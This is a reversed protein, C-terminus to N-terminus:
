DPRAWSSSVDSGGEVTFRRGSRFLLPNPAIKGSALGEGLGFGPAREILSAPAFSFTETLTRIDNASNMKMVILNDCQSLVNPHVKDPRQTSLLLYLGFKRGEGAIRIVHETALAQNEDTPHHPCVNHAEDIVIIIPNRERRQEWMIELLAASAIAGERASSLSGIDAVLMRWDTPLSDRMAPRQSSAWISLEAVGLNEIRRGLDRRDDDFSSTAMRLVDEITYDADGFERVTQLFAHYEGPDRLPDLGLAMTQQQITLRGFWARLPTASGESSMVHVRDSIDAYSRALEAYSEDDLGTAEQPRLRALAVYDSNPDIVGIRIRTQTLLRELIVGLTYTKGSGSQGCLFTHRGFGSATLLAPVGDITRLDGLSLGASGGLSTEMQRRVVQRDADAVSGSGFPRPREIPQPRGDVVEAIISGGVAARPRHPDSTTAALEVGLVQGLLTRGDATAITVYSGIAPSTDLTRECVFTRGDISFAGGADERVDSDTPDDPDTTVHEGNQLATGDNPETTMKKKKKKTTTTPM